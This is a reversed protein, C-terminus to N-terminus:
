KFFIVSESCYYPQNKLSFVVLIGVFTVRSGMLDSSMELDITKKKVSASIKGRFTLFTSPFPLELKPCYPLFLTQFSYSLM